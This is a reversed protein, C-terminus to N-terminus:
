LKHSGLRKRASRPQGSMASRFVVPRFVTSRVAGLGVAGPGVSNPGALDIARQYYDVYQHALRDMSLEQARRSGAARLQNALAPEALVRKLADALAAPDDPRVLLAEDGSCVVNRYGPLDSAVVPTQAAMAEALVVGFSEGRLSPVCFVDAQRMRAIKEADDVTGVWEIRSDFGYRQKLEETQPGSSMVWLRVDNSLYEMASLLVSLGKRPEHRGVYAITKGDAPASDASAGAGGGDGADAFRALEIGNFAVEYEGGLAKAAMNRADQSVAVRLHVRNALWRVGPLLYAKSGGAAHWTGVIPASRMILATQCPGPCLPEHIHLVDFAEDRLARVTRLTCAFDPAIPAVSGNTATPISAGLPTVGAMPPAGDCPALVRVQHGANSLAGALGLVQSQVGGPLTLSYPSVIGIRM